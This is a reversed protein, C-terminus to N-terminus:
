GHRRVTPQNTSPAVFRILRDFPAALLSRVDTATTPVSTKTPKWADVSGDLRIWLCEVVGLRERLPDLFAALPAGVDTDPNRFGCSCDPRAVVWARENSDPKLFRGPPMDTWNRLCVHADRLAARDVDHPAKILLFDCMSPRM